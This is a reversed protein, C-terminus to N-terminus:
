KLPNVLLNLVIIEDQVPFIRDKARAAAAMAQKAADWFGATAALLQVEVQTV